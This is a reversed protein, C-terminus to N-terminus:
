FSQGLLQALHVNNGVGVQGFNMLKQVGGIGGLQGLFNQQIAGFGGLNIVNQNLDVIGLHQNAAIAFNNVIYQDFQFKQQQFQQQGILQNLFQQQLDQENFAILQWAHAQADFIHQIAIKIVIEIQFNKQRNVEKNYEDNNYKDKENYEKNNYKDKDNKDKNKNDNKDNNKNKNDNKDNNKDNKDNKDKNKQNDKDANKVDEQQKLQDAKAKAKDAEAQADDKAQADLQAQAEKAADLEAQAAADAEDQNVLNDDVNQDVNNDVVGAEVAALIEAESADEVLLGETFICGEADNEDNCTNGAATPDGIEGPAFTGTELALLPDGGIQAIIIALNM